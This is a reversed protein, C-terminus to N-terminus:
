GESNFTGNSYFYFSKETRMMKTKYFDWELSFPCKRACLKKMCIEKGMKTIIKVWFVSKEIKLPSNKVIAQLFFNFKHCSSPIFSYFLWTKRSFLKKPLRLLSFERSDHEFSKILISTKKQNSKLTKKTTLPHFLNTSFKHSKKIINKM